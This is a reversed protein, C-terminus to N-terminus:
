FNTSVSSIQHNSDSRGDWLRVSTGFATAAIQQDPSIAVLAVLPDMHASSTQNQQKSQPAPAQQGGGQGEDNGSGM